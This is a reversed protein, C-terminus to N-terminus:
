ATSPHPGEEAPRTMERDILKRLYGGAESDMLAPMGQLVGAVKAHGLKSVLNHVVTKMTKLPVMDRDRWTEFPHTRLFIHFETLIAAIDYEYPVNEDVFTSLQKLAKWQCKMALEMIRAFHPLNLSDTM